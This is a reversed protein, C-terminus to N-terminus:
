EVYAGPPSPEARPAGSRDRLIRNSLIGSPVPPRTPRDGGPFDPISFTKAHFITGGPVPRFNRADPDVLQPRLKNISNDRRLQAANCTTNSPRCGQDSGEIGLSLNKPGNWILNGRIQLNTDTRSPSPINSQTSPNRPGYIAFHQYASRYGDPNYLVNNYVFVNRDPIPEGNSGDGRVTAGWGGANLHSRCVEIEGDCSRDGFVVEVAHSRRGVKYLTNYALLINYGGNVGIGAGETDHVINNVFKIDYAEYHLWPPTMYEFGTGQGATYGGTGCDYIENGEVRIYASGGKSYICWDGANHIRNSQVHGYQVAVFDIANDWGGSIDSSEVYVYQSQNVKLVEQVNFTEPDAGTVRTQRLLFHDCRECHLVDGGGAHVNLGIIYLYRCDFLNLSPLNATGPGDVAELIVPYKYAGWRSEWYVPVTDPLYDGAVLLIRYGTGTLVRNSPIRAWARNVTRLAQSRSAGSGGDNGRVPDVWIDKVVPTGIPYFRPTM